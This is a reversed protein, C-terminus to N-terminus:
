LCVPAQSATRNGTACGILPLRRRPLVHRQAAVAVSGAAATARPLVRCPLPPKAAPAHTVHERGLAVGGPLPDRQM